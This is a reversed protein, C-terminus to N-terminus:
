CAPCTVAGSWHQVFTLFNKGPRRGCTWRAAVQPSFASSQSVARGVTEHQSALPYAHKQVDIAVLNKRQAKTALPVVAGQEEQAAVIKRAGACGARASNLLRNAYPHEAPHPISEVEVSVKATDVVRSRACRGVFGQSSDKRGM